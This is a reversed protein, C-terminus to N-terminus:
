GQLAGIAAAPWLSNEACLHQLEYPDAPCDLAEGHLLALESHVSRGTRRRRRTLRQEV